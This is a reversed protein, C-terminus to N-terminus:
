AGGKGPGTKGAAPQETIIEADAPMGPKLTLQPNPVLVKIRYM